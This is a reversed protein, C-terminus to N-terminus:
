PDDPYDMFELVNDILHSILDPSDTLCKDDQQLKEASWCNHEKCFHIIENLLKEKTEDDYNYYVSSSGKHIDFKKRM